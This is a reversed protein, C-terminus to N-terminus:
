RRHASEPTLEREWISFVERAYQDRLRPTESHYAGVATWTNGYKKVMKKYHWAGIFINKCQDQVLDNAGIGYGALERLHVSNIQMCGFDESGNENRHITADCRRNERISIARLIGANVGQYSAAADFCDAHAPISGVLVLLLISLTKMSM